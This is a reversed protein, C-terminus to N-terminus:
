SLTKWGVIILMLIVVAGWGLTERDSLGRKGQRRSEVIWVVPGVILHWWLPIPKSEDNAYRSWFLLVACFYAFGLLLVIVLYPHDIM